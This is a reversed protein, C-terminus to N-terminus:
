NYNTGPTQLMKLDAKTMEEVLGDFDVKRKWGLKTQAKTPDGHLLDVETPRYYRPDVRVLTKGTKTCIGVENEDKGEWRPTLPTVLSLSHYWPAQFSLLCLLCTTKVEGPAM